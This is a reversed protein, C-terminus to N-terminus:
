KTFAKKSFGVRGTLTFDASSFDVQTVPVPFTLMYGTSWPSHKPYTVRLDEFRNKLKMISAMYRKGGSDIFARWNSSKASLDDLKTDPTFFSLFVQTEKSKSKELDQLNKAYTEEDWLFYIRNLELQYKLVQEDLPCVVYQFANRLGDYVEDKICTKNLYSYYDSRLSKLEATLNNDKELM